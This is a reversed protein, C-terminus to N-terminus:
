NPRMLQRNFQWETRIQRLQCIITLVLAPLFMPDHVTVAVALALPWYVCYFDALLGYSVPTLKKKMRKVIRAQWALLALFAVGLLIMGPSIVAMGILAAALSACEIPFMARILKATKERGFATVFTRLGAKMDANYDLIQHVLMYRIGVLTGGLVIAISVYDWPGFAAFVILAPMTRQAIAPAIVGWLYREKLRVPPMSYAWAVAYSLVLLVIVAPRDLFYLAPLLGVAVSAWIFAKARSPPLSAMANRKKATMDAARDSYDNIMHGFAAYLCLILLVVAMEGLTGLGPRPRALAAYFLAVLFLPIKTDRWEHWRTLAMLKKMEM